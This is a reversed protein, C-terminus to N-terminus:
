LSTNYKMEFGCEFLISEINILKIYIWRELWNFVVINKNFEFRMIWIRRDLCLSLEYSIHFKVSLLLDKGLKTIADEVTKFLEIRKDLQYQKELFDKSSDVNIPYILTSILLAVRWFDKIDRLLFGSFTLNSDATLWVMSWLNM